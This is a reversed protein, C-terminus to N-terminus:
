KKYLSRSINELEKQLEECRHILASIRKLEDSEPKKIEKKEATRNM